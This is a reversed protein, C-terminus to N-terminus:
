EGKKFILSVSNICYRKGTPEPGDDFVHGLHGGCKSCVVETRIMGHSHDSIEKVQHPKSPDYFSPWGCGADFKTNSRFLEAGCGACYYTGPENFKDYIGTYPRETAKNRLVEFQMPTLVEKWERESKTIEYNMTTNSKVATDASQQSCAQFSLTTLSAGLILMLYLQYIRSNNIM